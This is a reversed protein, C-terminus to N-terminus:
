MCVGTVCQTRMVHSKSWSENSLSENIYVNCTVIVCVHV